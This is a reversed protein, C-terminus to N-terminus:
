LAVVGAGVLAPIVGAITGGLWRPGPIADRLPRMAAAVACAVLFGLGVLKVVSLFYLGLAIAGAWALLTVLSRTRAELVRRVLVELRSSRDHLGRAARPRSPLAGVASTGRSRASGRSGRAPRGADHRATPPARALTRTRPRSTAGR